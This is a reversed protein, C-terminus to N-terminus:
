GSSTDCTDGVSLPEDAEVLPPEEGDEVLVLQLSHEAVHEVLLLEESRVANTRERAVVLIM